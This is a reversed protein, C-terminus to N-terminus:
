IRQKEGGAILDGAVVKVAGGCGCCPEGHMPYLTRGGNRLIQFYSHLTKKRSESRTHRNFFSEARIACHLTTKMKKNQVILPPPPNAFFICCLSPLEFIGM